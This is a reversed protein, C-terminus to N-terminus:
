YIFSTSFDSLTYFIFYGLLLLIIEYFMFRYEAKWYLFRIKLYVYAILVIIVILMSLDLWGIKTISNLYINDWILVWVLVFVTILCFDALLSKLFFRNWTKYLFYRGLLMIWYSLFPASIWLIPAWISCCTLPNMTFIKIILTRSFGEHV